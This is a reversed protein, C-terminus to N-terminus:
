RGPRTRATASRCSIPAASWARGDAEIGVIGNIAAPVPSRATPRPASRSGCSAPRSRRAAAARAAAHTATSRGRITRRAASRAGARSRIRDLPYEGMRQPQDQRPDGRRRRAAARGAARRPQHCQERARPQGRDDAAARRKRYQGQDAGAPRRAARAPQRADVAARRTSRPRISARDGFPAASRGGRHPRAATRVNAEAPGDIARSSARRWCSLWRGRDFRHAVQRM